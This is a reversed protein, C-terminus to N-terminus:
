KTKVLGYLQCADCKAVLYGSEPIFGFFRLMRSDAEPGSIPYMRGRCSVCPVFKGFGKCEACPKRTQFMATWGVGNCNPCKIIYRDALKDGM